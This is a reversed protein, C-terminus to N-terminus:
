ATVASTHTPLRNVARSGDYPSRAHPYDTNMGFGQLRLFSGDQLTHLEMKPHGACYPVMCACAPRAYLALTPLIGGVTARLATTLSLYRKWHNM